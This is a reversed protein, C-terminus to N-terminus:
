GFKTNAAVNAGRLKSGHFLKHIKSLHAARTLSMKMLDGSYYKALLVCMMLNM